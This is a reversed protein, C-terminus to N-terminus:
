SVVQAAGKPNVYNAYMKKSQTPRERLAATTPPRKQSVDISHSFQMGGHGLMNPKSTPV